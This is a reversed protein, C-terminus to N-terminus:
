SANVTARMATYAGYLQAWTPNIITAPLGDINCKATIQTTPQVQLYHAAGGQGDTERYMHGVLNFMSSLNGNLKESFDPSISRIAGGKDKAQRFHCICILHAPAKRFLAVLRRIRENNETYDDTEPKLLSRLDNVGHERKTIETLNDFSLDTLKDITFTQFSSLHGQAAMDALEEVASFTKFKFRKFTGGQNKAAPSLLAVLNGIDAEVFLNRPAGSALTTKGVGTDGYILIRMWQDMEDVDSINSMISNVISETDQVVPAQSQLATTWDTPITV